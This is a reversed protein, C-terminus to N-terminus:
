IKASLELKRVPYPQPLIPNGVFSADFTYETRLNIIIQSPFSMIVILYFKTPYTSAINKLLIKNLELLSCVIFFIFSM